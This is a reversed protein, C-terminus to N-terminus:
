APAVDTAEVIACNLTGDNLKDPNVPENDCSPESTLEVSDDTHDDTPDPSDDAPAPNIDATDDATDSGAATNDDTSDAAEPNDGNVDIAWIPIYGALMIIDGSILMACIAFLLWAAVAPKAPALIAPNPASAALNTPLATGSIFDNPPAPPRPAPMAASRPLARNTPAIDTGGVHCPDIGARITLEAIDPSPPIGLAAAIAPAAGPPGPPIVGIGIGIPIPAPPPIGPPM